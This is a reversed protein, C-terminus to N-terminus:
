DVNQLAFIRRRDQVWMGNHFIYEKGTDIVHFRSGEPVGSLPKKDTSYGNWDYTTQGHQIVTM